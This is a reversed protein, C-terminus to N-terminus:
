DCWDFAEAGKKIADPGNTSNWCLGDMRLEYSMGFDAPEGFLGSAPDFFPNLDHSCIRLAMAQWLDMDGIEALQKGEEQEAAIQAQELGAVIPVVCGSIYGERIPDDAALYLDLDFDHFLQEDGDFDAVCDATEYVIGDDGEFPSLLFVEGDGEQELLEYYKSLLGVCLAEEITAVVRSTESSPTTTTSTTTAVTTQDAASDGGGSCSSAVVVLALVASLVQRSM